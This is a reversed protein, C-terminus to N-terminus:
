SFNTNMYVKVAAPVEGTSGSTPADDWVPLSSRMTLIQGEDGIALRTPTGGAGGRILDGSATMPNEMGSGTSGSSNVVWELSGLGGDFGLVRADIPDPISYGVLQTANVQVNGGREPDPKSSRTVTKPIEPITVKQGMAQAISKGSTMDVIVAQGITGPGGVLQVNHIIRGSGLDVDVKDNVASIIVGNIARNQNVKAVTRRLNRM